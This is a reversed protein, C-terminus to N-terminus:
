TLERNSQQDARLSRTRVNLIARRGRAGPRFAWQMATAQTRTPLSEELAAGTRDQKQARNKKM